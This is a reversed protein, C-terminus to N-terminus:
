VESGSDAIQQAIWERLRVTSYRVSRGIKVGQPRGPVRRNRWSRLTHTSVGLMEAAQEIPIMRDVDQPPTAADVVPTPTVPPVM